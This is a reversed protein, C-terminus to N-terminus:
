ELNNTADLQTRWDPVANRLRGKVRMVGQCKQLNYALKKTPYKEIQTKQHKRMILNLYHIKTLIIVSIISYIQKNTQKNISLSSQLCDKVNWYLKTGLTKKLCNTMFQAWILPIYGKNALIESSGLLCFKNALSTFFFIRNEAKLLNHCM